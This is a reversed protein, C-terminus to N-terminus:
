SLNTSSLAITWSSTTFRSFLVVMLVAGMFMWQNLKALQRDSLKQYSCGWNYFGLLGISSVIARSFEAEVYNDDLKNLPFPHDHECNDDIRNELVNLTIVARSGPVIPYTRIQLWVLRMLIMGLLAIPVIIRLRRWRTQLAM